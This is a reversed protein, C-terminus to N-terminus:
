IRRCKVYCLFSETDAVGPTMAEGLIIETAGEADVSNAAMPDAKGATTGVIVHTGKAIAAHAIVACPGWSQVWYYYNATLLRPSVGLLVGSVVATTAITRYYENYHLGVQSSTTLAVVLPDWLTFTANDTNSLAENSKIQYSHGEGDEDNVYLWGDKFTDAKDNPSTDLNATSVLNVTTAGAAAAAGVVIDDDQEGHAPAAQQIPCGAAPTGAGNKAYIFTRSGMLLVTGLPYMQSATQKYPDIDGVRNSYMYDLDSIRPLILMQGNKNYITQEFGM